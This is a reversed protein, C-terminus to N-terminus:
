TSALWTWAALGDHPEYDVLRAHPRLSRRESATRLHPERAVRDQYYSMEDASARM